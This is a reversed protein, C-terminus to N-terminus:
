GSATISLTAGGSLVQTNTDGNQNGSISATLTPTADGYVMTKNDATIALTPRERYIAYNGTGLALSYNTASEDSNYRFNGSGSGI